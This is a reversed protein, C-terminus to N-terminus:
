AASKTIKTNVQTVQLGKLTRMHLQEGPPRWTDVCFNRSCRDCLWIVKQRMVHGDALYEPPDFDISHLTGSRFYLEERNCLHNACKM